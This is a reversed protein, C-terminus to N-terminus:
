LVGRAASARARAWSLSSTASMIAIWVSFAKPTVPTVVELAVRATDGAWAETAVENWNM